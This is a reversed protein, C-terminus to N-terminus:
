ARDPQTWVFCDGFFRSSSHYKTWFRDSNPRSHRLNEWNKIRSLILLCMSAKSKHASHEWGKDWRLRLLGERSKGSKRWSYTSLPDNWPYILNQFIRAALRTPTEAEFNTRRKTSPIGLLRYLFVIKVVRSLKLFDKPWRHGLKRPFLYFAAILLWLSLGVGKPLPTTFM